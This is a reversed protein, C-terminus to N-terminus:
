SILGLGTPLDQLGYVSRLWTYTKAIADPWEANPIWGLHERALGIDLINVPVDVSRRPLYNVRPLGGHISKVASLVENVSRGVRSGINELAMALIISEIIDDIYIYDRVVSGDGWIEITTGRLAKGILAAILGQDHPMQYQGFANSIRLSVFDLAYLHRYLNLYSETTAKIIGYSSIPKPLANESVPVQKQPGYVTGGSSAYIVKKVGAEKCYDLLRLTGILNEEVDRIQELNSPAPLLTSVLHVVIDANQVARRLSGDNKTLNVQLWDIKDALDPRATASRGVGSVAVGMSTLALCLNAGIFGNGGLVTCHSGTLRSLAEKNLQM